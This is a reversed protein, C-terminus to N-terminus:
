FIPLKPKFIFDNFVINVMTSPPFCPNNHYIFCSCSFYSYYLCCMIVQFFYFSVFSFTLTFINCSVM